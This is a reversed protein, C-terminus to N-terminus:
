STLGDQLSVLDTFCYSAEKLGYQLCLPVDSLIHSYALPLYSASPFLFVFSKKVSGYMEPFHNM